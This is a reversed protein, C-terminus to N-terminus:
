CTFVLLSVFKLEMMLDCQLMLCLIIEKKCGASTKDFDLTKRSHNTISIALNSTTIKSRSFSISCSLLEESISPYFEAIDINTSRSKGKKHFHNLDTLPLLPLIKGNASKSPRQFM